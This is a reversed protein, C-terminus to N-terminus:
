SACLCERCGSACGRYREGLGRPLCLSDKFPDFVFFASRMELARRMGGVVVRVDQLGDLREQALLPGLLLVVAQHLLQPAEMPVPDASAKFILPMVLLPLPPSRVAVLLPLKVRLTRTHTLIPLLAIAHM